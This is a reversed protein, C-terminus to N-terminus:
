IHILSLTYGTNGQSGRLARWSTPNTDIIDTGYISNCLFSNNAQTLGNTVYVLSGSADSNTNYDSPRILNTGSVHWIGNQIGGTQGTLLVRDNNAAVTGGDFGSLPWSAPMAAIIQSITLISNSISIALSNYNLQSMSLNFTSISTINGSATFSTLAGTDAVATYVGGSYTYLTFSIVGSM